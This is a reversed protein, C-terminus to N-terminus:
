NTDKRLKDSLKTRSIGLKVNCTFDNVIEVETIITKVIDGSKLVLNILQGCRSELQQLQPIDNIYNIQFTIENAYEKGALETDVIAQIEENIQGQNEVQKEENIWKTLYPTKERDGWNDTNFDLEEITGADTMTYAFEQMKENGNVDFHIQCIITNYEDTEFEKIIEFINLDSERLYFENGNELLENTILFNNEQPQYEVITKIPKKMLLLVKRFLTNTQKGQDLLLKPLVTSFTSFEFVSKDTSSYELINGIEIESDILIKNIADFGNKFNIKANDFEYEISTVIGYRLRQQFNFLIKDGIALLKEPDYVMCESEVDAINSIRFVLDGALLESKFIANAKFGNFVKLYLNTNFQTLNNM